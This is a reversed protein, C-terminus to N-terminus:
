GLSPLSDHLSLKLPVDLCIPRLLRFLRASSVRVEGPIRGRALFHKLLRPAVSEWMTRLGGDPQPSVQDSVIKEGTASDVVVLRYVCRQRPEQTALGVVLSFGVDLKEEAAFPLDKAKALDAKAFTISEVHPRPPPIELASDSWAGDAGEVRAFMAKESAFRLPLGPDSEVRMMVGYSEWLMKACFAEEAANALRPLYCPDHRFLRVDGNVPFVLEFHSLEMPTSYFGFNADIRTRIYDHFTQWGEILFFRLKVPTGSEQMTSCFYPFVTGKPCVAWNYPAVADWLSLADMRHAIEAVSDPRAKM